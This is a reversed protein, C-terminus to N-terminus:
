NNVVYEISNSIMLKGDSLHNWKSDKLSKNSVPYFNIVLVIGFDRQLRKEIILPTGDTWYAIVKSDQNLKFDYHFSWDGGDFIKIGEVIPHNQDPIEGLDCHKNIIRNGKIIPLFDNTVLKGALVNQNKANNLCPYSAIVVGGGNEVYEALLNGMEISNKFSDHSYCFIANYKKIQEFTPIEEFANIIDVKYIGTFLISQRVDERDTENNDACLLLIEMQGKDLWMKRSKMEVIEQTNMKIINDIYQEDFLGSEKMENLEDPARIEEIRIFNIVKELCQKLYEPDPVVNNEDCVWKGWEIIQRFLEIEPVQLKNLSLLEVLSEEKLGVFCKRNFIVKMANNQIFDLAKQKLFYNEYRQSLELNEVCNEITLNEMLFEITLQHLDPIMYKEAARLLDSAIYQSSIQVKRTYAFNMIQEFVEPEFDPIKIYALERNATELWTSGYFMKQWVESALAFLLRHGYFTQQKITGVFFESDAIEEKNIIGKLIEEITKVM